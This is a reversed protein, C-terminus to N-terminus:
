ASGCHTEPAMRVQGALTHIHNLKVRLLDSTECASVMGGFYARLVTQTFSFGNNIAKLVYYSPGGKRRKLTAADEEKQQNWEAMYRRRLQQYRAKSIVHRDLLRRAIVECSVKFHASLKRIRKETSLGSTHKRWAEDFAAAEVLAEAAVANCYTEVQITERSSTRGVQELNSIGPENIWLHALEHALTFLQAAKGDASNLFIFPAHADCLVIGRAEECEISKARFIFVGAKEAKEIWLHLAEHRSQCACQEESTINLIQRIRDALEAATTIKVNASGIFDLEERGEAIVFERTWEQRYQTERILFALAFDRLTSFDKPPETMYFVALPRKYVKAAKRAQTLTPRKSGNEWAQIDDASRGIRHAADNINFGATERAWHLLEPTVLAETGRPMNM